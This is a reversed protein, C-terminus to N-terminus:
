NQRTLYRNFFFAMWIVGVSLLSIYKYTSNLGINLSLEPVPLDLEETGLNLGQAFALYGIPTLVIVAFLVKVWIPIILHKAKDAAKAKELVVRNFSLSPEELGESQLLAKLEKDSLNFENM